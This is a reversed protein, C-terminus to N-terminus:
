LTRRGWSQLAGWATMVARAAGGARLGATLVRCARTARAVMGTYLSTDTLGAEDETSVFTDWEAFTSTSISVSLVPRYTHEISHEHPTIKMKRANKALFYAQVYMSSVCVCLTCLYQTYTPSVQNVSISQESRQLHLPMWLMVQSGQCHLGACSHLTTSPTSSQWEVPLSLLFAM